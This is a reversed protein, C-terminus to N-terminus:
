RREGERDLRPAPARPDLGPVQRVQTYQVAVTPSRGPRHGCRIRPRRAALSAPWRGAPIPRRGRAPGRYWYVWAALTRAAPPPVGPAAVRVPTRRRAFLTRGGATATAEYRDLRSLLRTGAYLRFLRGHIRGPGPTAGPYGDLEVLCGSIWAPGLDRTGHRFVRDLVPDGTGTLLTGYAFLLRISM